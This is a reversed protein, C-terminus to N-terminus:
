ISPGRYERNCWLQALALILDGIRSKVAARCKVLGPVSVTRVHGGKGVLDVIAWHDERQQVDEVKLHVLESRRLGCGLLVALMARDRKGRLTQVSPADVM